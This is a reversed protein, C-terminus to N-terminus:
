GAALIETKVNVITGINDKATITAVSVPPELVGRWPRLSGKSGKSAKFVHVPNYSNDNYIITILCVTPILETGGGTYAM